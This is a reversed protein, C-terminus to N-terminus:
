RRVVDSVPDNFIDVVGCVGGASPLMSKSAVVVAYGKGGISGATTSRWAELGQSGVVGFTVSGVSILESLSSSINEVLGLMEGMVKGSLVDDAGGVSIGFSNAASARRM